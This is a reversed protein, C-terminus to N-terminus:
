RPRNAAVVLADRLPNVLMAREAQWVPVGHSHEVIGAIEVAKSLMVQLTLVDYGVASALLEPTVPQGSTLRANALDWIRDMEADSLM